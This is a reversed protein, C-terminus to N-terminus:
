KYLKTKPYFSQWAFWYVQVAQIKNGKSDHVKLSKNKNNYELLLSKNSLKDNVILSKELSKISYAKAVGDIIIGFVWDKDNLDNRSKEFPFMASSSKFYSTYADKKYDRNYGTDTSLVLSKPYISKWAKWTMQYSNIWDLETKNYKGSVSKMALQSWLSNSEKDYMLVDNEYLLGSVGFNLINNKIDRNFIMGTGCLPCYSVLFYKDHISDNVLEHWILIRRPYAKAIGNEVIGLIIDDEKLYDVDDVYLFKPNNIAPIGDRPVGGSLIKNADISSGSVDFGNLFKSNGSTILLFLLMIKLYITKIM